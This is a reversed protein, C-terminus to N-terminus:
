SVKRGRMNEKKKGGTCGGDFLVVEDGGSDEGRVSSVVDSLHSDSGVGLEEFGVSGEGEVGHTTRETNSGLKHILSDDGGGM